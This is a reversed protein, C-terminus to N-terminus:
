LNLFFQSFHFSQFLSNFLAIFSSYLWISFTPVNLYMDNNRFLFPSIRKITMMVVMMIIIDYVLNIIM